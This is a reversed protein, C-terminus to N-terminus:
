HLTMGGDVTYTAGTVYSAGDSLLFAVVSAVEDPRGFRPITGPPPPADVISLKERVAALMPTDIPGPVVVNCRIGRAAGQHAVVRSLATVGGKSAAYGPSSTGIFAAVSAVNVIAGGGAAAMAPVAARCTLFTGKLNVALTRDFAEEPVSEIAVDDPLSIGAANVLGRLHGLGAATAFVSAVDAASSVDARVAAGETGADAAGAGITSATSELGDADVDVLVPRWGGVALRLAVARGIGSAAGTVVAVPAGGGARVAAAEADSGDAM